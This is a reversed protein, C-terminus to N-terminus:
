SFAPRDQSSKRLEQKRGRCGDNRKTDTATGRADRVGGSYKKGQGSM